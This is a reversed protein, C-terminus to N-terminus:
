VKASDICAAAAVIVTALVYALSSLTTFLGHLGVLKYSKM